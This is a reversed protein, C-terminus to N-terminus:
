RKLLKKNKTLSLLKKEIWLPQYKWKNNKSLISFSIAARHNLMNKNIFHINKKLFFQLTQQQPTKYTTATLTFKRKRKGAKKHLRRIRINTLVQALQPPYIFLTALNNLINWWLQNSKLNILIKPYFKLPLDYMNYQIYNNASNNTLKFYTKM